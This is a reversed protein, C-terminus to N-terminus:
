KKRNRSYYLIDFDIGVLFTPQLKNFNNLGAAFEMRMINHINDFGIFFEAFQQRTFNHLYNMGFYTHAQTKRLLGIKSLLFGNFHHEFHAEAFAQKTSMDYYGLTSFQKISQYYYTSPQLYFTQTGNFHKYDIFEINEVNFFGGGSLDWKTYGVNGLLTTFSIGGAVFNYKTQSIASPLGQRYNVYVRPTNMKLNVKKGNIMKYRQNFQYALQAKFTLAQHDDFGNSNIDEPHEPNNQTFGHPTGTLVLTSHNYLPFRSAYELSSQMEFGNTIEHQYAIEIFDKGYMKLYNKSFFLSYISNILPSIPDEGNFQDVVHGVEVRVKKPNGLDYTLEATLRSKFDTDAFGFRVEPNLMLETGKNYVWIPVDYRLYVGEVTNYGLGYYLPNFHFFYDDTRYIYRKYLLKLPEFPQQLYPVRSYREKFVNNLNETKLLDRENRSLAVIREQRWYKSNDSVSGSDIHLVENGARVSPPAEFYEQEKYYVSSNYHGKFGNITLHFDMVQFAKRYTDNDYYYLQEVRVSDMGKLHSSAKFSFNAYAVTFLSDYIDFYGQFAPTGYKKPKFGIRYVILKGDRYSGIPKLNYHQLARDSLPTFYGSYGLEPMFIKNHYFSFDKDTLYTFDPLSLTGAGQFRSVSDTFSYNNYYRQESIQESFFVIGTDKASPLLWGSVPWFSFPVKNIEAKSTKLAKARYSSYKKENEERKFRAQRVLEYANFDNKGSITDLYILLKERYNFPLVITKPIYGPAIAKLTHKQSNAPLSFNGLSDTYIPEKENIDQILAYPIPLGSSNRVQGELSRPQACLVTEFLLFLSLIFTRTTRLENEFLVKCPM